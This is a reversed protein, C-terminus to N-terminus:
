SYRRTIVPDKLHEHLFCLWHFKSLLHASSPVGIGVIFASSLALPSGRRVDVMLLPQGYPANDACPPSPPTTTSM